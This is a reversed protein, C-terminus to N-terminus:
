RLQELGFALREMSSPVSTYKAHCAVIQRCGVLRLWGRAVSVLRTLICMM